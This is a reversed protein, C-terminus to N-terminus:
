VKARQYVNVVWPIRVTLKSDVYAYISQLQQKKLETTYCLM